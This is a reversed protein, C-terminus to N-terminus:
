AEKFDSMIVSVKCSPWQVNKIMYRETIRIILYTKPMTTSFILVCM